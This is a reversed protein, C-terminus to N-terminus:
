AKRAILRERDRLRIGVRRATSNLAYQDDGELLLFNQGDFTRLSNRRVVKRGVEFIRSYDFQVNFM